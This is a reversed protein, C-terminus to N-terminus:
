RVQKPRPPKAPQYQGCPMQRRNIPPLKPHNQLLRLHHFQQDSSRLGPPNQPRYAPHQRHFRPQQSRPRRPSRRLGRRGVDANHHLRPHALWANGNIPPPNRQGPSHKRRCSPPSNSFTSSTPPSDRPLENSIRLKKNGIGPSQPRHPVRAVGRSIAQASRAAPEWYHCRLSLSSARYPKTALAFMLGVHECTEFPRPGPQLCMM